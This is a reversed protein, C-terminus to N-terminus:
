PPAWGVIVGPGFQWRKWDNRPSATCQEAVFSSRRCWCGEDGHTRGSALKNIVAARHVGPFGNGHASEAFGFRPAIRRTLGSFGTFPITFPVVESANRRATEDLIRM